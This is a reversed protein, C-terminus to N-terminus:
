NNSFVKVFEEGNISYSVLFSDPRFSDGPYSLDIKSYVENGNNVERALQQEFKNFEGRNLSSDQAVLNGIDSAGNFRNAFIHGRDDTEREDGKGIETIGASQSIKNYGEHDKVQLKGEASIIRGANDTEYKYGNIEYTNDAILDNNIRYVKNCDDTYYKDVDIDCLPNPQVANTEGIEQPIDQRAAPTEGIEEPIDSYSNRVEGIEKPVEVSRVESIKVPTVDSAIDKMNM